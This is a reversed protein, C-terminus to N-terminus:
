VDGDPLCRQRRQQAIQLTQEVAAHLLELEHVARKIQVEVDAFRDELKEEFTILRPMKKVKFHDRVTQRFSQAVHYCFRWRARQLELDPDLREVLLDAVQDFSTLIILPEFFVQTEQSAPGADMHM